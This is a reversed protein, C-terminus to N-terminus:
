TVAKRLKTAMQQRELEAGLSKVRGWASHSLPFRGFGAGSRVGADGGAQLPTGPERHVRWTPNINSPRRPGPARLTTPIGSGHADHAHTCFWGKADM